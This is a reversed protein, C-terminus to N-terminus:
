YIIIVLMKTMLEIYYYYDAQTTSEVRTSSQLPSSSLIAPIRYLFIQDPKRRVRRYVIPM